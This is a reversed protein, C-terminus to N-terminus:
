AVQRALATRRTSARRVRIVTGIAVLYCAAVGFLMERPHGHDLLFGFAVPGIIGGLDLGSYVFGYVRGAAGKPTAARVILDRSPGTSGLAFGILVFLPLLLPSPVVGTAVLALVVTALLMGAAAVLDHRATRAALFGGALIGAAGGLLYATLTSTALALSVGYVSGLVTPIFTQLGLGGITVCVFYFFCLLIPLQLFLAASGKVTHLHSDAAPHSVLLARQSLMIALAALGVAGMGALAFRWGFATGLAFSVVPALAYGLNGGIGHSSYAHGLRRPAVNANLIAFDAPHFVGNGIGM